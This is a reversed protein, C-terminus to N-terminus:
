AIPGSIVKGVSEGRGAKELRGLTRMTYWPMWILCRVSVTVITVMVVGKVGWGAKLATAAGAANLVGFGLAVAAYTRYRGAALIVARGIGATGGIVTHVLVLPVIGAAMPMVNRGLWQRLIWEASLGVPVAAVLLVAGCALSGRVYDRRVVGIEGRVLAHTAHPLLVAGVASTLLLLAGDIQLAPAYVAVDLPGQLRAILYQNMPAYCFDALQGLVLLGAPAVILVLCRVTGVLEPLRKMDWSAIIARAALAIMGSLFFASAARINTDPNLRIGITMLAPWLLEGIAVVLNDAALLNRSQSVAGAVEGLTRGMMGMVMLSLVPGAGLLGQPVPVTFMLMLASLGVAGVLLSSAAVWEADGAQVQRKAEYELM